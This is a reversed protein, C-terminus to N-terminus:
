AKHWELRRHHQCDDTRRSIGYALTEKGAKDYCYVIGGKPDRSNVRDVFVVQKGPDGPM